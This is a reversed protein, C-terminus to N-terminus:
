VSLIPTLSAQFELNTKVGKEIEEYFCMKDNDPLEFTLQGGSVFLPLCLLIALMNKLLMIISM